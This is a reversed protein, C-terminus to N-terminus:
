DQRYKLEINEHQGEKRREEYAFHYGSEKGPDSANHCSTCSRVGAKHFGVARLEAFKYPRKNEKIDEQIEVSKSGPGHCGECTVGVNDAAQEKAEADGDAPVVYGGPIGFGSTHCSLCVADKTYDKNPDFKLKIKEETRAGPKLVDFTKAMKTKRWSNWQKFHCSKCKKVGIYTAGKASIISLSNRFLKAAQDQKGQSQCILGLEYRVRAADAEQSLLATLAQEDKESASGPFAASLADKFFPMAKDIGGNEYHILGLEYGAMVAADKDKLLSNLATQAQEMKGSRADFAALDLIDSVNGTAYIQASDATTTTSVAEKVPPAEQPKVPAPAVEKPKVPSPVIEQPKVAVPATEKPKVVVPAPEKMKVVSPPVEQQKVVTPKVEQPKTPVLPAEQPKVPIPVVEQAKAVTPTAEVESYPTGDNVVRFGVLLGRSVPYDSRYSSRLYNGSNDWSGGRVSHSTGIAPGKPDVSPSNSYYKEDYYDSCWEFINGHMDYLGWPNPKKQGAPHAYDQGVKDANDDFWAHDGLSSDSSGFSFRTTTGARCAYEWEAETPLRYMRGEKKSLRRCFEMADDWSVYVAPNNADEQVYAKGSWPRANMISMYQGQTVETQGMWFGKSIRVPHRPFENAFDKEKRDYEGALQAASDNCGMMFSGDPIYVLNIGTFRAGAVDSILAFSAAVSKDSDVVLMVPNTSGSLDGSWSTFSYGENPAAELTVKEGRKYSAKDPSKTVSGGVATVTLSYAKLAFGARVSKDADMVLTVPNTGGSLDGSWNTFSYDKNPVAELTVMEGHNYSAKDPSKTVSGDVATATLSYTKVAFGASVSTNAGIVLKAPNTSGSLDGSWNTFSYGANPAAELTVTEGHNYSAKDPTKIVSGYVATVTLSYSKLTFGASVSKDADMVLTAPNTGGSLDGSWNVFSYGANPVAELAVSEGYNYSDKDPKTKISGDAATITLSYTKLAFDAIVSKDADMVMTVPNTSGFLDGSWNKFSYGANPIAVLTVTEGHNYNDKDPNKTVSGGVATTTLSYTKATVSATASEVEISVVVVDSDAEGDNVKFSFSDSGHFNTAPNYTLNPATGSLQGHAPGAVVSYTLQDGNEDSGTIIISKPTNEQTAVSCAEAIPPTNAKKPLLVVIATVGIVVLIALIIFEMYTPESLSGLKKPRSKLKSRM